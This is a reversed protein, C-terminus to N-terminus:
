NKDGVQTEKLLFEFVPYIHRNEVGLITKMARDMEDQSLPTQEQTSTLM